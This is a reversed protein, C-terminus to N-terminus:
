SRPALFAQTVTMTAVLAGDPADLTIRVDLVQTRSGRHVETAVAHLTGETVARMFNTQFQITSFSWGAPLAPMTAWAAVSDGFTAIAGGHVFGGPHMVHRGVPLEGTAHGVAAATIRIGLAGVITGEVIAEQSALATATDLTSDFGHRDHTSSV